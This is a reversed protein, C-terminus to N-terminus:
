TSIFLRLWITVCAVYNVLFPFPIKLFFFLEPIVISWLVEKKQGKQYNSTSKWPKESGERM